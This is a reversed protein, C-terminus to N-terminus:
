VPVTRGGINKLSDQIMQKYRPDLIEGIKKSDIYIAVPTINSGAGQGGGATNANNMAAATTTSVRPTVSAQATNINVNATVGMKNLNSVVAVTNKNLDAMADSLKKVALTFSSFKIINEGSFAEFMEDFAKGLKDADLSGLSSFLKGISEIVYGIGSAALKMGGGIMLAAAGVSLLVGVALGTLAAQPGTVLSLLGLMLLGFAVTFGIVAAAAPWAAAGLGSFSMVLQALGLAAIAIGGGILLVSAGLALLGAASTAAATGVSKIGAAMGNSSATVAPASATAAATMSMIGRVLGSIFSFASLAIKLGLFATVLGIIIPIAPGAKDIFGTMGMVVSKIAEIVPRMEIALKAMLNKFADALETADEIAKNMLKQAKEAEIQKVTSNATENNMLKQLEGVDSLGLAQATAMQEQKSMADISRGSAKLSDQLIRVREGETANLLEISNLYDGGMIANLRGAADAAGEFTDFKSTVALLKNFEIGTNKASNQLDLFVKTMNKGHASLQPAAKGFEAAVQKPPLGMAYATAYLSKQLNTSEVVTMGMGKILTEQTKVVDAEAIGLKGLQAATTALVAQQSKSMAEFGSFEKKFAAFSKTASEVSIGFMGNANRLNMIQDKYNEVNGVEKEFDAYAKDQQLALNITASIIKDVIASLINAATISKGFQETASGLAEGFGLGNAKAQILQGVITKSQTGIGTISSLSNAASQAFSKQTELKQRATLLNERAAQNEKLQLELAEADGKKLEKQILLKDRELILADQQLENKQMAIDIATKASKNSNDMSSNLEEQIRANKNLQTEIDALKTELLIARKLDDDNM